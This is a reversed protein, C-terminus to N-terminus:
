TQRPNFKALVAENCDWAHHCMSCFCTAVRYRTYAVVAETSGCEPCTVFVIDQRTLNPPDPPDDMVGCRLLNPVGYLVAICFVM